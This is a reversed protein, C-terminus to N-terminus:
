EKKFTRCTVTDGNEMTTVTEEYGIERHYLEHYEAVSMGEPPVYLTLSETEVEQPLDSGETTRLATFCVHWLIFAVAKRDEETLGWIFATTLQHYDTIRGEKQVGLTQYAHRYQHSPKVPKGDKDLFYVYTDPANDCHWGTPGKPYARFLEPSLQDVKVKPMPVQEALAAELDCFHQLFLYQNIIDLADM